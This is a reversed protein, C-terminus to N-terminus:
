VLRGQGVEVEDFLDLDGRKEIGKRIKIELKSERIGLGEKELIGLGGKELIGLGGKEMGLHQENRREEGEEGVIVTVLISPPFLSYFVLVNRLIMIRWRSNCLSLELKQRLRNMPKIVRKGKKKKGGGKKETKTGLALWAKIEPDDIAKTPQLEQLPHSTIRDSGNPMLLVTFKIRAVYDGACNFMTVM